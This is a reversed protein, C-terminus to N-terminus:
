GLHDRDRPKALQREIEWLMLVLAAGLSIVVGLFVLTFAATTLTDLMDFESCISTGAGICLRLPRSAQFVSANIM